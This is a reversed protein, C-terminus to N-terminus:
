AYVAVDALSEAVTVEADEASGCRVLVDHGATVAARVEAESPAHGLDLTGPVSERPGVVTLDPPAPDDREM